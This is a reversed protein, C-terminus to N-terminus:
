QRKTKAAVYLLPPAMVFYFHRSPPYAAYVKQPALPNGARKTTNGWIVYQHWNFHLLGLFLAFSLALSDFGVCVNIMWQLIKNKIKTLSKLALSIAMDRALRTERQREIMALNLDCIYTHEYTCIYMHIYMCTRGFVDPSTPTDRGIALACAVCVCRMQSKRLEASIQSRLDSILQSWSLDNAFHTTSCTGSIFSFFFFCFRIPRM